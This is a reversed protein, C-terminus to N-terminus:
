NSTSLMVRLIDKSDRLREMLGNLPTQDVQMSCCAAEAGAFITNTMEEVNIDEEPVALNAARCAELVDRGRDDNCAM